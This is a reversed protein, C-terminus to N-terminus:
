IMFSATCMQILMGTSGCGFDPYLIHVKKWIQMQDSNMWYIPSSCFRQSPHKRIWWHKGFGQFIDSDAPQSAREWFGCIRSHFVWLDFLHSFLRLFTFYTEEKLFCSTRAKDLGTDLFYTYVYRLNTGPVLINLRKHLFCINILTNRHSFRSNQTNQHWFM